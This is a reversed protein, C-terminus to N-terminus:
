RGADDAFPDFRPALEGAAPIRVRLTRRELVLGDGEIAVVLRFVQEVDSGRIRDNALRVRFQLRTKTHVDVFTDPEGDPKGDPLLDAIQAPSEGGSQRVPVIAQVFGIPDDTADGRVVAFRIGEVLSAISDLIVDSLGLGNEDVDFVLPCLDGVAAVWAGDVGHPCQGDTPTGALAGTLLAMGELEARARAYAPRNCTSQQGCAGSVIGVVNARIARLAEAAESFSHTGPFFEAYDEPTHSPADTVHLVVRLAGPRFGVGGEEGGGPLARRDFPLIYTTAENSYGSGTAIQFLAEAGAEPIDGGDDLPQNLRAIASSVRSPVATISTLLEFATDARDSRSGAFGFPARPFDAFRSVGFSVDPVRLRLGPAITRSMDMQLREIEAGISGTTDVSFHVDLAGAEASLALAYEQAPAGFALVFEADAVPLEPRGSAPRQPEIGADADGGGADPRHVEVSGPRPDDGCSLSCCAACILLAVSRAACSAAPIAAYPSGEVATHYRLAM